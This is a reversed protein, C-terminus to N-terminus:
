HMINVKTTQFSKDTKITILYTGNALSKVPIIYNTTSGNMQATFLEKGTLDNVSIIGKAKQSTVIHLEDNAPNPYITAKTGLADNVGAAVQKDYVFIDDVAAEVTSQGQQTASSVINDSATFKLQIKNSTPIYDRVRAMNRRWSYDPCNTYDIREQWITETEEKITVEWYDNRKNIGLDNAYWRFYEVIPKQFGSIDYMPTVVSTSGGDVDATGAASTSSPANGTVLCRGTGTTHDTGPQCIVGSVYSPIPTAVIWKGATANDDQFTGIEWKTSDFAGDFNESYKADLGVGYQFPINILSSSENPFFGKPAYASTYGLNDNVTFYYDLVSGNTYGPLTATYNTGTNTMVTSDWTNSGREKYFVKIGQLYTPDSVSLTATLTVSTNTPQNAVETHTIEADNMLYIGHKAFAAVIQQFHPTGNTMDNDDDDAQLAAILISHYIDGETGSAGDPTSPYTEIFLLTMTDTSGINVGVDWWAGAIIEGDNHVEGTMDVPYVKPTQDYRRVVSTSSGYAGEGLVGTKTISLAWIDATGEGLAGNNMTGAGHASYYKDNIGHGYEHYVIDGWYAFSNCGTSAAYFNISFSSSSYFANCTGTTLDVNTALPSDMGTFSPFYGKMFDHVRNVHYYATVMRDNSPATAIFTTTAGTGTLTTTYSPTYTSTSSTSKDQVKSWSGELSITATAPPTISAANFYGNADTYFTSGNVDVKLDTLAETTAAHLPNQKYVVGNVTLDVTEKIDNTRYLVDGSIADVYGHLEMPSLEDKGNITFEWVPRLEYGNLHPVPFWVWDSGISNDTITLGNLDNIAATQADTQTLTPTISAPTGYTKMQIRQLLGSKTFSFKINSFVVDRGDIQQTYNVVTQKSDSADQTHHWEEKNIGLSKLQNDFLYTVKNDITNGQITEAKGFIDIFTGNLKDAFVFWSPFYQNIQTKLAQKNVRKSTPLDKFNSYVSIDYDDSHHSQAFTAVTLSSALSLMLLKSKM